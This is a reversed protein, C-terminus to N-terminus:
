RAFRQVLVMGSGKRIQVVLSGEFPETLGFCGREGGIVATPGSRADQAVVRTPGADAAGEVVLFVDLEVVGIGGQAVVTTCAGAPLSLSVRAHQGEALTAGLPPGAPELELSEGRASGDLALSLVRSPHVDASLSPSPEGLHALLLAAAAPDPPALPALTSARTADDRESRSSSRTRSRAQTPRVAPLPDVVLPTSEARSGCAPALAACALLLSLHAVRM